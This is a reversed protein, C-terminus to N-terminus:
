MEKRIRFSIGELLYYDFMVFYFVFCFTDDQLRVNCGWLFITGLAPMLTLSRCTRLLLFGKFTSLWDYYITLLGLASGCLGQSAAGTDKLKSTGQENSESPRTRNTGEM